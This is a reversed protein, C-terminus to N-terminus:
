IKLMTLAEILRYECYQLRIAELYEKTNKAKLRTALPQTEGKAALRLERLILQQTSLIPEISPKPSKQSQLTVEVGISFVKSTYRIPHM